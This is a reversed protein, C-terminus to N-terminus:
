IRTWNLITKEEEEKPPTMINASFLSCVLRKQLGNKLYSQLFFVDYCTTTRFANYIRLFEENIYTM